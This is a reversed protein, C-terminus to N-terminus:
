CNAALVQLADGVEEALRTIMQFPNRGDPFRRNLAVNIRKLQDYM